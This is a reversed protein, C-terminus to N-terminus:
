RLQNPEGRPAAAPKRGAGGSLTVTGNADMDVTLVPVNRTAAAKRADDIGEPPILLVRANTDELYFPVRRGEDARGAGPAQPQRLFHINQEPQIIATRDDPISSILGVLTTPNAPTM